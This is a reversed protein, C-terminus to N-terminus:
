YPKVAEPLGDVERTIDDSLNTARYGPRSLDIMWLDNRQLRDDVDVFLLRDGQVTFAVATRGLEETELAGSENIRGIMLKGRLGLLPVEREPDMVRGQVALWVLRGGSAPQPYAESITNDATLQKVEGELNVMFLDTDEPSGEAYGRFVLTRDDLWKPQFFRAIDPNFEALAKGEGGATPIACIAWSEGDDGDTQRAIYSLTKGDPSVTATVGTVGLERRAMTALDIAVIPGTAEAVPDNMDFRQAATAFLTRGDPALTPFTLGPLTHRKGRYIVETASPGGEGVARAITGNAISVWSSADTENAVLTSKMTQLDIMVLGGNTKGLLAPGDDNFPVVAYRGDPSIAVFNPPPVCGALAIFVGPLPYKSLRMSGALIKELRTRRRRSRLVRESM